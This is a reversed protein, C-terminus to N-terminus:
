SPTSCTTVITHRVCEGWAEQLDHTFRRAQFFSLRRKRLRSSAEHLQCPSGWADLRFPQGDDAREFRVGALGM